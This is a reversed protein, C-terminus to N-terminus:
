KVLSNGWGEFGVQKLPKRILRTCSVKSQLPVNDDHDVSNDQVSSERLELVFRNGIKYKEQNLHRGSKPSSCALSCYAHFSLITNKRLLTGLSRSSLLVPFLLPRLFHLGPFPSPLHLWSPSLSPILFDDVMLGIMSLSPLTWKAPSRNSPAMTASGEVPFAAFTPGPVSPLYPCM